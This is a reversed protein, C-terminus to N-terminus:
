GSHAEDEEDATEPEALGDIFDSYDGIMCDKIDRLVFFNIGAQDLLERLFMDRQIDEADQLPADYLEMCALIRYEADAVAFSTRLYTIERRLQQADAENGAVRIFDALRPRIILTMGDPMSRALMTHFKRETESLFSSYEYRKGEGTLIFARGSLEPHRSIFGSFKNGPSPEPADAREAAAHPQPAPTAPVNAPERGAPRPIAPKRSFLGM